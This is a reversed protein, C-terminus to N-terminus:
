RSYGGFVALCLFFPCFFLFFFSFFSDGDMQKMESTVEHAFVIPSPVLLKFFGSFFAFFFFLALCLRL